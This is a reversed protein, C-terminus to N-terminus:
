PKRSIFLSLMDLAPCGYSAILHNGHYFLFQEADGNRDKQQDEDQAAPKQDGTLLGDFGAGPAQAKLLFAAGGGAVDALRGQVGIVGLVEAVRRLGLDAQGEVGAVFVAAGGLNEVHELGVLDRGGKEQHAAVQLPIRLQDFPHGLLPVGDAVM